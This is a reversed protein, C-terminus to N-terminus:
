SSKWVIQLLIEKILKNGTIQVKVVNRFAQNGIKSTYTQELYKEIFHILPFQDHKLHRPAGKLDLYNKKTIVM